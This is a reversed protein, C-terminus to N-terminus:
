MKVKARRLKKACLASLFPRFADQIEAWSAFARGKTANEIDDVTVGPRLLKASLVRYKDGLCPSHAFSANRTEWEYEGALWEVRSPTGNRRLTRVIGIKTVTYEFTECPNIQYDLKTQRLIIYDGKVSPNEVLAHKASETTTIM